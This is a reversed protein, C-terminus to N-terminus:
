NKQYRIAYALTAQGMSAIHRYFLIGHLILLHGAPAYNNKQLQGFLIAGVPCIFRKHNPIEVSRDGRGPSRYNQNHTQIRIEFKFFPQNANRDICGSGQFSYIAGPRIPNDISYNIYRIVFVPSQTGWRPLLDTSFIHKIIISPHGTPAYSMWRLQEFHIARVPCIFNKM